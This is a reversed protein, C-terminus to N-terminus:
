DDDSDLFDPLSIRALQGEPSAPNDVEGQIGNDKLFKIAANLDQPSADGRKVRELLEKALAQHLEGMMDDKARKKAM